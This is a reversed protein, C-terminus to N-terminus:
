RHAGQGWAMARTLWAPALQPWGCACCTCPYTSPSPCRSGALRRPHPPTLHTHTPPGPGSALRHAALPRCCVAALPACRLPLLFLASAASDLLLAEAADAPGDSSGSAMHAAYTLTALLRIGAVCPTRHATWWPPRLCAPATAAAMLLLAAPRPHCALTASRIRRGRPPISLRGLVLLASVGSCAGCGGALWLLSGATADQVLQRAIVTVLVAAHVVGLAADSRALYPEVWRRRLPQPLSAACRLTARHSRPKRAASPAGCLCQVRLLGLATAGQM